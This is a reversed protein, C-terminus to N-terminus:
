EGIVSGRKQSTGSGDWVLNELELPRLRADLRVDLIAAEQPNPPIPDRQVMVIRYELVDDIRLLPDVDGRPELLTARIPLRDV